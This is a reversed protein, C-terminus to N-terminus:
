SNAVAGFVAAGISQGVQRCFLVSATTTGREAWGVTSQVGVILPLQFLGLAAGLLLMILAPQWPEGPYPLLPFALLILLAASMGIIATLRFGIRNYVR